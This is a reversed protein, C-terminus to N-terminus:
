KKYVLMISVVYIAKVNIILLFYILISVYLHSIIAFTNDVLFLLFYSLLSIFSYLLIWKLQFSVSGLFSRLLYM